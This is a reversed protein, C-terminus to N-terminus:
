VSRNELLFKYVLRSYILGADTFTPEFGARIRIQNSAKFLGLFTLFTIYNIQLIRM